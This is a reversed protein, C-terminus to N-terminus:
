CPQGVWILGLSGLDAGALEVRLWGLISGVGCAVEQEPSTQHQWALGDKYSM